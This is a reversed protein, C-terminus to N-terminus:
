YSQLLLVGLYIYYTLIRFILKWSKKLFAVQLNLGLFVEFLLRWKLLLNNVKLNKHLPKWGWDAWAKENREPLLKDKQCSKARKSEIENIKKLKFFIPQLRHKGSFHHECLAIEKWFTCWNLALSQWCQPKHTLDFVSWLNWFILFISQGHCGARKIKIKM